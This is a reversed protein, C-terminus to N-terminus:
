LSHERNQAAPSSGGFGLTRFVAGGAVIGVILFISAIVFLVIM